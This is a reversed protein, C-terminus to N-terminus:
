TYFYGLLRQKLCLEVTDEQFKRKLSSYTEFQAYLSNKWTVDEFGCDTLILNEGEAFQYNPRITVKEVNLLQDIIMPQEEGKGIMFLVSMMLRVQHWLFATGKIICKYISLSPCQQNKQVLVTRFSFIRRLFNQEEDPTVGIMADDKKCFNRFDHLGIFKLASKAILPINM